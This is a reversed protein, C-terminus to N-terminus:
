DHKQLFINQSARDQRQEIRARELPSLGNGDVRSRREYARISKQQKVLGAAERTTLTGSQVGQTIRREQRDQRQNIRAEAPM